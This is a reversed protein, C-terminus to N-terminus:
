PCKVGDVGITKPGGGYGPGGGQEEYKLGLGPRVEFSGAEYDELMKEIRAWTEQSLIIGDAM